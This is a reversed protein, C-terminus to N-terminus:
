KTYFRKFFRIIEGIWLVSSSSVIIGLWEYASLPVTRFIEGGFTVVIFQGLLIALSVLVFGESKKLGKFASDNSGFTKANFMNWFQLMVFFTFFMTLNKVSEATNTIGGGFDAFYFLLGSLVIIFLLGTGLILRRMQPVIIFDNTNRPKQKMVKEDPPLSALAGAAFTDMILNVWLM